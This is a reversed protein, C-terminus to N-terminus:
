QTCFYLGMVIGLPDSPSKTDYITPEKFRLLLDFYYISTTFCGHHTKVNFFLLIM